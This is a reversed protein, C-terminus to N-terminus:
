KDIPTIVVPLKNVDELNVPVPPLWILRPKREHALEPKKSGTWYTHWHGRRIHPRKSGITTREKGTPEAQRYQRIAQGMRIGVDWERINQAPLEHHTHVHKKHKESRKFQN